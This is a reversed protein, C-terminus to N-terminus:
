AALLLLLRLRMDADNAATQRAIIVKRHEDWLPIISAYWQDVELSISALWVPLTPNLETPASYIPKRKFAPKEYTELPVLKPLPKRKKVPKPQEVRKEPQDNTAEVKAVAQKIADKLLAEEQMQYMQLRRIGSSASNQAPNFLLQIATGTLLRSSDLLQFGTTAGSGTSSLLNDASGSTAGANSLLQSGTTITM